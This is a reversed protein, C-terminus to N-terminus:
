GVDTTAGCMDAKPPIAFMNRPEHRSKRDSNPTFRVYSTATSIDAKSGFRVDQRPAFVFIQRPNPMTTFRPRCSAVRHVRAARLPDAWPACLASRVRISQGSLLVIQNDLARARRPM